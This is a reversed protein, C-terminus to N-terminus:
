RRRYVEADGAAFAREFGAPIVPGPAGAVIWDVRALLTDPLPAGRYFGAVAARTEAARPTEAPHGHVVRLPTSAMVFLSAAPPALVVERERAHARLFRIADWEGRSMFVTRDHRVMLMLSAGLVLVSGLANFTVFLGRELGTDPGRARELAIAALLAVPVYAAFDFRRGQYWPLAVLVATAALWALLLLDNASRRRAARVAGALAFPLLLGAALVLQWAPPAPTRVQERWGAYAPNLAITAIEHLVFPLSAAALVLLRLLSDRPPRRERAWRVAVWAGGVAGAIATGFPQVIALVLAGAVLRGWSGRPPAGDEPVLADLVWLQAALALTLHLSVLMAFCPFTEPMSLETSRVGTALLVVWGLGAGTACLLFAFRRQRPKAHFRAVFAYLTALLLAGCALRTLHLVTVPDLRTGASVHGLLLYEPYFFAGPGDALAYPPRHLWHGRVGEWLTSLLLSDDPPYWIFGGWHLSAPTRLVAWLWPLAAAALILASAAALWAWERREVRRPSPAAPEAPLGTGPRATM